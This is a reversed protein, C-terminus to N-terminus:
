KEASAVKENEAVKIEPFIPLYAQGQSYLIPLGQGRNITINNNGVGNLSSTPSTSVFVWQPLNKSLQKAYRNTAFETKEVVLDIMFEMMVWAKKGGLWEPAETQKAGSSLVNMGHSNSEIKNRVKALYCVSGGCSEQDIAYGTYSDSSLSYEGGFTLPVFSTNEFSKKTAEFIMRRFLMRAEFGSQAMEAPMWAFVINDGVIGPKGSMIMGLLITTVNLGKSIGTPNLVGTVAGTFMGIDVASELRKDGMNKYFSEKPYDGVGRSLNAADLM